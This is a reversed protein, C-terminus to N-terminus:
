KAARSAFICEDPGVHRLRMEAIYQRRKRYLLHTPVPFGNKRALLQELIKLVRYAERGAPGVPERDEDVIWRRVTPYPRDFLIAVDSKMLDAARMLARLRKHFAIQGYIPGTTM